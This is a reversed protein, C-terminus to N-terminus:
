LRWVMPKWWTRRVAHVFEKSQDGNFYLWHLIYYMLLTSIVTGTASHIGIGSPSGNILRFVGEGLVIIYFEEHREVYHEVNTSKKWGGALLRDGIPSAMIIALPHELANAVTLLAIRIPRNVFIAAIWLGSTLITTCLVFVWQRRLWPQFFSQIGNAVLFSARILLYVSIVLTYSMPGELAFAFPANIGYLVALILIWITFNRQILDDIYFNSNYARLQDWVRWIPVFLLLFELVAVGIGVGSESFATEGYTTSINAIIGVWILDVFLELRSLQKPINETSREERDGETDHSTRKELSEHLALVGADPNSYQWARPRKILHAHRSARSEAHLTTPARNSDQLWRRGSPESHIADMSTDKDAHSM